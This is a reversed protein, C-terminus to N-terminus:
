STVLHCVRMPDSSHIHQRNNALSHQPVHRYMCMLLQSSLNLLHATLRWHNYHGHRMKLLQAHHRAGDCSELNRGTYVRPPFICHYLFHIGAVWLQSGFQTTLEQSQGTWGQRNHTYSYHVFICSNEGECKRDIYRDGLCFMFDNSSSPNQLWPAYTWFGNGNSLAGSAERNKLKGDAFCPM